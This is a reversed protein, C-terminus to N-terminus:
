MGKDAKGKGKVVLNGGLEGVWEEELLSFDGTIATAKERLQKYFVTM